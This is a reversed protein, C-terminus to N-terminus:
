RCCTPTLRLPLFGRRRQAPPRYETHYWRQFVPAEAQVQALSGFARRSWFGAVWLSHFTEVQYNRKAEYTPTFIPTLPARPGDAFDTDPHRQFQHRWKNLWRPSRDLDTCIDGARQGQWRRRMAECRLAQESTATDM